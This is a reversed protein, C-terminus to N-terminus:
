VSSAETQLTKIQQPKKLNANSEGLYTRVYVADVKEKEEDPLNHFEAATILYGPQDEPQYYFKPKWNPKHFMVKSFLCLIEWDPEKVHINLKINLQKIIDVGSFMQKDFTVADIYRSLLYRYEKQWQDAIQRDINSPPDFWDCLKRYWPKDDGNM